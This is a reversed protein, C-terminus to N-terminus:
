CAVKCTKREWVERRESWLCVGPYVNMPWGAKGYNM